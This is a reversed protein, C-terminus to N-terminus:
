KNDKFSKIQWTNGSPLAIEVSEFASRGLLYLGLISDRCIHKPALSSMPREKPVWPNLLEICGDMQTDNQGSGSRHDDLKPQNFSASLAFGISYDCRWFKVSVISPSRFRVTSGETLRLKLCVAHAILCRLNM